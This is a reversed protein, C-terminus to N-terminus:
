DRSYPWVWDPQRTESKKPDIAAGDDKRDPGVSYLLFGGTEKRRYIMPERTYIDRPLEPLFAPVLEALTEPIAGRALRFREIAIALRTQDLQTQVSAFREGM